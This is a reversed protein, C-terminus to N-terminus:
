GRSKLEFGKQNENIVVIFDRGEWHNPEVRSMRLEIKSENIRVAQGPESAPFSCPSHGLAKGNVMVAIQKHRPEAACSLSDERGGSKSQSDLWDCNGLGRIALWKVMRDFPIFYRPGLHNSGSILFSAKHPEISPSSTAAIIITSLTDRLFDHDQMLIRSYRTLRFTIHPTIGMILVVRGSFNEFQFLSLPPLWWKHSEFSGPRSRRVM